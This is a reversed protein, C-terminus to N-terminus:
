IQEIKLQAESAARKMVDEKDMTKYSQRVINPSIATRLPRDENPLKVVATPRNYDSSRQKQEYQELYDEQTDVRQGHEDPTRVNLYSRKRALVEEM